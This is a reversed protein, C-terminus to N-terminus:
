THNTNNYIYTYSYNSLNYASGCITSINITPCNCSSNIDSCHVSTNGELFSPECTNTLNMTSNKFFGFTSGFILMSTTIILCVGFIASLMKFVSAEDNSKPSFSPSYSESAIPKDEKINTKMKKPYEIEDDEDKGFPSNYYNHIRLKEKKINEKRRLSEKIEEERRRRKEDDNIFDLHSM